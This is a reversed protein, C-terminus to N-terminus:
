SGTLLTRLTQWMQMPGEQRVLLFGLWVFHVTLVVCFGAYFRRLLPSRIEPLRHKVTQFRQWVVVALGHYLGWLLYRLSVEHWFGIAVLSSVTGLFPSRTIAVVGAFVYERSWSTLSIHWSRWFAGINQKLYPWSFNEMVRFGLLRAFGIAIDSHGSFQFYLNLGIAVMEIYVVVSASRTAFFTTGADQFLVTLFNGLLAIKIYGFIIREIGEQFTGSDWRNRRMDRAFEPYRHIPGIFLTPVFFLYSLVNQPEFRGIQGKYRELVFHICRLTYYGIGLPILVDGANLFDLPGSIIKFGLFFAAIVSIAAVTRIGSVSPTRTFLITAVTMLSLTVLSLWDVYGLFLASAGILFLFRFRAPLVWYILTVAAMTALWFGSLFSM